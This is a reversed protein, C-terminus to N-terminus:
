LDKTLSKSYITKVQVGDLMGIKGAISSSIPQPADLVISIISIDHKHYPLGMRGIIYPAYDHLISNIDKAAEKNEVIIGIQAIRNEAM